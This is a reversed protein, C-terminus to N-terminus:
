SQGPIYEYERGWADRYFLKYTQTYTDWRQYVRLEQRREMDAEYAAQAEDMMRQQEDVAAQEEAAHDMRYQMADAFVSQWHQMAMNYEDSGRPAGNTMVTEALAGVFTPEQNNMSVMLEYIMEDATGLAFRSVDKRFNSNYFLDHMTNLMQNIMQGIMPASMSGMMGGMMGSMMSMPNFFAFAPASLAVTLALASLTKKM